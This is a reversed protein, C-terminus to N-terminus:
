RGRRESADRDASSDANIDANINIPACLEEISLPAGDHRLMGILSALNQGAKKPAVKLTVGSANAVLTLLTGEKWHLKERIEKPIVIQGKSSLTITISM